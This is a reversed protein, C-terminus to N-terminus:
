PAMYSTVSAASTAGGQPWRMEPPSGARTTSIGTVGARAPAVTGCASRPVSIFCARACSTEHDGRIPPGGPRAHSRLLLCARGLAVARAASRPSTGKVARSTEPNLRSVSLRRQRRRYSIGYLAETSAGTTPVLVSASAALQYGGTSTTGATVTSGGLYLTRNNGPEPDSHRRKGARFQADSNVHRYTGVSVVGNKYAM